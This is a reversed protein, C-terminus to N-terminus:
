CKSCNTANIACNFEPILVLLSFNVGKCWLDAFIMFDCTYSKLRGLCQLASNSSLFSFHQHIIHSVRHWDISDIVVVFQGNDAYVEM